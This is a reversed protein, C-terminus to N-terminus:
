RSSGQTTDQGLGKIHIICIYNLDIGDLLFTGMVNQNVGEHGVNGSWASCRMKQGEGVISASLAWLVLSPHHM